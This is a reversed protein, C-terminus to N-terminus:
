FKRGSMSAAMKAWLFLETLPLAKAVPLPQHLERAVLGVAM